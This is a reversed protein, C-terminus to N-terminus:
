RPSRTAQSDKPPAQGTRRVYMRYAVTDMVYSFPLFFALLVLAQAAHAATSLRSDLVSLAVFMLPAVILARRGVRRWSPPQVERMTRRTTRGGKATTAKEALKPKDKEKDKRLEAPAVPVENGDDDVVVYEYDHRFTKERRRRQKRSPM